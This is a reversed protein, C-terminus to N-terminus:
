RRVTPRTQVRWARRRGQIQRLCRSTRRDSRSDSSALVIAPFPADFAFHRRLRRRRVDWLVANKLAKSGIRYAAAIGRHRHGGAQHRLASGSGGASRRLRYSDM